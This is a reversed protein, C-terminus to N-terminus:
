AHRLQDLRAANPCFEPYADAATGAWLERACRGRQTCRLCAAELERMAEPARRRIAEVDLNLSRMLNAISRVNAVADPGVPALGAASAELMTAMMEGDVERLERAAKLLCCWEGMSAIVGFPDFPDPTDAPDSM